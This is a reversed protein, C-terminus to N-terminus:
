SAGMVFNTGSSAYLGLSQAPSKRRRQASGQGIHHFKVMVWIRSIDARSAPRSM